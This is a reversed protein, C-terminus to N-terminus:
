RTQPPISPEAVSLRIGNNRLYRILTAPVLIVVSLWLAMGVIAIDPDELLGSVLAHPELAAYSTSM